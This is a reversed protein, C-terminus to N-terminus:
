WSNAISIRATKDPKIGDTIRQDIQLKELSVVLQWTFESRASIKPNKAKGIMNINMGQNPEKQKRGGFFIYFDLRLCTELNSTFRGAEWGGRGSIDGEKPDPKGLRDPLSTPSGDYTDPKSILGEGLHWFV